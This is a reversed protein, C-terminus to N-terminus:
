VLADPLAQKTGQPRVIKWVQCSIFWANKDGFMGEFKTTTLFDSIFALTKNM